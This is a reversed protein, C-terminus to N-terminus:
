QQTVLTAGRAKSSSVHSGEVKKQRQPAGRTWKVSSSLVSTVYDRVVVDQGVADTIGDSDDSISGESHFSHIIGDSFGDESRGESHGERGGEGGESIEESCGERIDNEPEAINNQLFHINIVRFKVRLNCFM